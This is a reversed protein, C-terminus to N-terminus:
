IWTITYKGSNKTQKVLNYCGMMIADSIDPSRGLLKKQEEKSIVTVKSDKDVDKLKVSLLEQTLDDIIEPNNINISILGQKFLEGLKLYCQSKLNSFNENNFPKSNNVFNIGRLQDAVGSGIGDSDIIISNPHVKYSTMLLRIQETLQTTSLKKYVYIETIVMGVWVVAVSRDEGFRSVDLSIIIKDNPNPEFRYLSNSISDFEFIQNIDSTYDWDGLMLRRRQQEPLSELTKIYDKNVHPNDTILSQVFKKNPELNDEIFPLYFLRKLFNDGPNATLLIKPILKYENLKYRIRSKLINYCTQTIQSSEDVMVASVEYGQLSEYNPDAPTYELNKLIIESENYFKFTNSQGNFTYHKDVSLGMLKLVEFLTVMTTQKLTQLVTRGVIYRTGPYKICMSAIWLCGIFSKGGAVGGGFLVENTTSDTLYEWAITQKKTLKIDPM